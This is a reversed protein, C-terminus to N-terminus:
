PICKGVEAAQHIARIEVLTLARDYVTVEDIIGGLPAQSAGLHLFDTSQSTGSVTHSAGGVGDWYLRMESGNYSAAIHHFVGLELVDSVALPEFAGNIRMTFDLWPGFKRVVAKEDGLTVMRQETPDFTDLRVWFEITFAQLEGVGDAEGGAYDNVGDLEFGQDVIAPSYTGGNELTLHNTGAVDRTSSDGPWWSVVGPPSPICSPRPPPEPGTPLDDDAGCSLAASPVLVLAAFRWLGRRGRRRSSKTRRTIPTPMQSALDSVQM